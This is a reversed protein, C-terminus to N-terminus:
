TNSNIFSAYEDQVVGAYVIKEKPISMVDLLYELTEAKVFSKPIDWEGSVPSFSYIDLYDESGQDFSEWISGKFKDGEFTVSVWRICNESGHKFGGLFVEIDKKRNLASKAEDLTLYRRSM